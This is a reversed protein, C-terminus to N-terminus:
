PQAVFAVMAAVPPSVSRLRVTGGHYTTGYVTGQNPPWPDHIRFVVGSESGDSYYGSFVVAHKMNIGEFVVWAPGRNLVSVLASAPPASMNTAMRWGLGHVFTEVNQLSPLLGGTAGLQAAGPGVSMNGFIMTAAASWCTMGTPQAFLTVPHLRESIRGLQAWTTPGAQGNAPIIRRASQFARLATETKQGFIGDEVLRPSAGNKNLLVQLFMADAGRAGRTLTNM